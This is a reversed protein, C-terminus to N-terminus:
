AANNLKTVSLLRPDFLNGDDLDDYIRVLLNAIELAGNGKHTVSFSFSLVLGGTMQVTGRVIQESDQIAPFAQENTILPARAAHNMSGCGMLTITCSVFIACVPKLCTQM